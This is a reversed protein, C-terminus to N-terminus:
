PLIVSFYWEPVCRVNMTNIKPKNFLVHGVYQIQASPLDTFNPVRLFIPGTVELAARITENNFAALPNILNGVVSQYTLKTEVPRRM